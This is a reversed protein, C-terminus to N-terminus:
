SKSEGNQEEIRNEIEKKRKIESAARKLNRLHRGVEREILATTSIKELKAAIDMEDKFSKHFKFSYPQKKEKTTDSM